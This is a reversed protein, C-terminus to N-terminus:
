GRGTAKKRPDWRATHCEGNGSRTPMVVAGYSCMAGERGANRDKDGGVFSPDCM